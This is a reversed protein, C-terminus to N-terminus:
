ARRSGRLQTVRTTNSAAYSTTSGIGGPHLLWRGTSAQLWSSPPSKQVALAGVIQDLCGTDVPRGQFLNATSAQTPTNRTAPVDQGACTAMTPPSAASVAEYFRACTGRREASRGTPLRVTLRTIRCRRSSPLRGWAPRPDRTRAVAGSLLCRPGHVKRGLPM